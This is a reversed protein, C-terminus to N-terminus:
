GGAKQFNSAYESLGVASFAGVIGTLFAALLNEPSAGVFIAVGLFAFVEGIVFASINLWISYLEKKDPDDAGGSAASLGFKRRLPKKLLFRLILATLVAVGAPGLLQEPQLTEM